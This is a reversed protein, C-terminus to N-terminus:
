NSNKILTALCNTQLKCDVQIEWIFINKENMNTNEDRCVKNFVDKKRYTQPRMVLDKTKLFRLNM